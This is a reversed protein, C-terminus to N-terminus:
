SRGASGADAWAARLQIASSISDLTVAGLLKGAQDTVLGSRLGSGQILGVMQELPTDLGAVVADTRTANLVPTAPGSQALAETLATATAIGVLRGEVMVPYEFQPSALTRLAAQGVTERGDLIRIDTQLAHGALLGALSSKLEAARAEAGAGFWVFIGILALGPNWTLGAVVFLAAIGRGVLAAWRTGTAHDTVAALSARLVRGGDMPFAPILNFATLIVNLWFLRAPLSGTMPDSGFLDPRRGALLIAGGIALALIVNVAPGALAVVIEQWPKEPMRELRALGGIPLLTIDKTRIGFWGASIAHGLEHLVIIFFTLLTFLVGGGVQAMSGSRQWEMWGVWVLVLFFTLHVYIGIGRVRAIRISWKM